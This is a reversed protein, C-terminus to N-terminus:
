PDGSDPDIPEEVEVDITPGPTGAMLAKLRSLEADVVGDENAAEEEAEAREMLEAAVTGM